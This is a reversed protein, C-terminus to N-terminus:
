LGLTGAIGLNWSVSTGELLVDVQVDLQPGLSIVDERLVQLYLRNSATVGPTLGQFLSGVDFDLSLVLEPPHMMAHVALRLENRIEWFHMRATVGAFAGYAESFARGEGDIAGLRTMAFGVDLMLHGVDDPLDIEGGLGALLRLLEGQETRRWTFDHVTVFLLRADGRLQFLDPRTPDPMVAWAEARVHILDLMARAGIQGGLEVDLREPESMWSMGGLVAVELRHRGGGGEDARATPVVALAVFAIAFLPRM